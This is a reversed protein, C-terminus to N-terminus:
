LHQWQTIIASNTGETARAIDELLGHGLWMLHLKSLREKCLHLPNGRRLGQDTEGYEDLYPASMFTGKSLGLLLIECERIRLFIGAGAGCEHAHYTCAGVMSKNLERQCCYTMSCLIEGCVLCMTPNRSDDRDNNRCTFTSVSNILDSYDEPLTVLNKVSPLCPVIRTDNQSTDMEQNKYQVVCENTALDSMFEKLIDNQFYSELDTSLGLYQCMVEFTDGNQNSFEDPFEVDTMFRFLLCSCRLFTQSEHRIDNLLVDLFRRNKTPKSDTSSSPLCYKFYFDLVSSECEIENDETDMEGDNVTDVNRLILIKVINAAFMLKLFYYEFLNGSPVSCGDIKAYIICPTMFVMSVLMKFVDWELVTAVQNNFITNIMSRLHSILKLAVDTTICTALLGSVRILGSLCSSHRISMQGSLPKQTARLNMELSEITYACALWTVLFPESEESTFPFPAVRRISKIFDDIYSQLEPSLLSRELPQIIQTLQEMDAIEAAIDGLEPFRGILDLNEALEALDQIEQLVSNYKRMVAVWTEFTMPSPKTTSGAGSALDDPAVHFKPLAPMIPLVTNSLCRCLPCLFEKKDMTFSSVSRNRNPRRSEKQVENNFYDKWCTAHMVHGCTGIHPSPVMDIIHALVNSKQVFCSYVMCPGSPSVVAEESCLICTFVQDELFPQKRDPGLCGVTQNVDMFDELWEMSGHKDSISRGATEFLEANTTMFSKQANAMQAMIKARREAALKAREEKEAKEIEAASHQEAQEFVNESEM